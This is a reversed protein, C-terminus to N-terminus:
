GPLALSASRGALDRGRPLLRQVIVPQDSVVFLATGLAATAQPIDIAVLGNAPVSVAELGPVDVEGGPGLAKVAVTADGFALNMVLLAETTAQAPGIAMSWRSSGPSTFYEEVGQVLSTVRSGGEIVTVAMEVVIPVDNVSSFAVGHRGLPLDPVNDLTYSVIRGAPVDIADRNSVFTEDDIGFYLPVVQALEGTPNYISIREFNEGDKYGGAFHWGISAAPAGLSLTYGRREDRYRQARAAVVRGRTADITIAYVAEDKLLLSEDIVVISRGPVPVGQLANPSRTVEPTAFTLDLIADDPFPNTIVLDEESEGLTYNDAFYWTAAPSNACPSVANGDAHEAIQEVFGTGSVEVMASVYDGQPQLEKLDVQLSERAEVEFDYEAPALGDATTFATVRGSIPVDGPNAITVSGGLGDGSIPVGACYWTSNLLGAGPVFPMSPAALEAFLPQRAPEADSRTSWAIVGAPLVVTALVAVTRRM